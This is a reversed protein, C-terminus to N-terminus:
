STLAAEGEIDNIEYPLGATSMESNVANAVAQLTTSEGLAQPTITTDSSAPILLEYDVQLSPTTSDSLRREGSALLVNIIRVMSEQIGLGDAIGSVLTDELQRM